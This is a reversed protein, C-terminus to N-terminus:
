DPAAPPSIAVVEARSANVRARYLEYADNLDEEHAVFHTSVIEYAM